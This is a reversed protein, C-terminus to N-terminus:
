LSLGWGRLLERVQEKNFSFGWSHRHDGSVMIYSNERGQVRATVIPCQDVWKQSNENKVNSTTM